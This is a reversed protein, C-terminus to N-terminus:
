KEDNMRGKRGQRQIRNRYSSSQKMRPNKMPPSPKKRTDSSATNKDILAMLRRTEAILEPAAEEYEKLKKLVDEYVWWPVFRKTLLGTIFMLLMLVIENDGSIFKEM